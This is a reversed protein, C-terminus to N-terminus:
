SIATDVEDEQRQGGQGAIVLEDDLPDELTLADDEVWDFSDESPTAGEESESDAIETRKRKLKPPSTRPMLKVPATPFNTEIDQVGSGSSPTEFIDSPGRSFDRFVVIRNNINESWSKSSIAPRLIAGYDYKVKISTQSVLVAALNRIAALKTLKTLFEGMIGFRRNSAWEADNHKKGSKDFNDPRDPFAAGFLGSVGDIVILATDQPPFTPQSHCILALLHPLTPVTFHHMHGLLEDISQGVHPSSNLQHESTTKYSALVEKIRPGAVKYSCDIWVVHENARLAGTAAQLALATKGSGSPGYIETLQSKAFGGASTDQVHEDFATNHGRLIEDLRNLGTPVWQKRPTALNQLAQSVSITPLRHSSSSSFNSIDEEM